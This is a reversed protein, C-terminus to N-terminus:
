PRAGCVRRGAGQGAGWGGPRGVAGFCGGAWLHRAGEALQEVQVVHRLLRDRRAHLLRRAEALHLQGRAGGVLRQLAENGLLAQAQRGLADPLRQAALCHVEHEGRVGRLGHALRHELLVALDPVCHVAQVVRPQRGVLRLLAEVGDAPPHIPPRCPHLATCHRATCCHQAASYTPKPPSPTHPPPSLAEAAGSM